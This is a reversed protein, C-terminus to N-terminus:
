KKLIDNKFYQQLKKNVLIVLISIGAFIVLILLGRDSHDYRGSCGVWSQDVYCNKFM